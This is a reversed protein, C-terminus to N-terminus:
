PWTRQGDLCMCAYMYSYMHEHMNPAIFRVSPSEFRLGLARAFSYNGLDALNGSGVLVVQSGGWFYEDCMRRLASGWLMMTMVTLLLM